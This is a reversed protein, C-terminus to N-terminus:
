PRRGVWLVPDSMMTSLAVTSEIISRIASAQAAVEVAREIARGLLRGKCVVVRPQLVVIIGGIVEGTM